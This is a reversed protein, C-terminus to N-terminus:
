GPPPAAGSAGPAAGPAEAAPAPPAEPPAALFRSRLAELSLPLDDAREKAVWYVTDRDHRRAAIGRGADVVGLHVEALLDGAGEEPGGFARLVARPPELGLKAREAPGMAEAAVATGELGSLERLLTAVQEPDLSDPATKWAEGDREGTVVHSQGDGEGHFALEFRRVEGEVFRALTKDRYADVSRPFDGLRGAPVEYVAGEVEGRAPLEGDRAKGFAVRVSGEKGDARTVLEVALEPADLAATVEASPADDFGTARLFELDSLLRSVTRGDAAADLPEVLRWAQPDQEDRVLRVGGGAWRVRAEVVADREFRALRKERLDDVSRELSSTRYSAVVHVPRDAATAVYTNSGVPSRSGIRLVHEEGGARFRVAPEGELGYEALPGPEEIVAESRLGALASAVGEANAEDAPFAVPERLRWGGEGRELRLASGDKARLRVETVDDADIGRFVRKEAEVREAREDAGRIEYLWVFAGLAAVALALLATARPNM